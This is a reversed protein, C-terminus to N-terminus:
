HNFVFNSTDVFYKHNSFLRLAMCAASAHMLLKVNLNFITIVHNVFRCAVM